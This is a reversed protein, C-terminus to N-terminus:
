LKTHNIQIYTARGEVQLKVNEVEIYTAIASWGM